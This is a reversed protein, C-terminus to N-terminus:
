FLFVTKLHSGFAQFWRRVLNSWRDSWKSQRWDTFVYVCLMAGVLGMNILTAGIGSISIFDTTVKGSTQFIARM